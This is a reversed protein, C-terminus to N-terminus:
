LFTQLARVARDKVLASTENNKLLKNFPEIAKREGAIVLMNIITIQMGPDKQKELATLFADRVIEFKTYRGLAYVAAMRVNINKDTNMTEILVEVLRTDPIEIEETFSVAKIRQSPSENEILSYMLMEKINKMEEKMDALDGSSSGASKINLGTLVGAILIILGAAIQIIPSVSSIGFVKSWFSSNKEKVFLGPKIIKKQENLMYYFEEDLQDPPLINKGSTAEQFLFEIQKFEENCAKCGSLHEEIGSSINQDLEKEVFEILYKKVEKCKM